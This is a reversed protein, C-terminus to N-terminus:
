GSKVSPVAGIDLYLGKEKTYRPWTVNMGGNPDGTKAFRTWLDILNNGVMDNTANVPIPVKFILIAESGHFAGYPQGPMVYTYQYRYTDPNLEANSGAVFKVADTFDFDTMIQILRLQVEATSNAPYKTFVADAEKGFRNQIFTRYEPVTMNADAALTTGDDANNGIILPVPNQRHLRFLTDPSDPILWGDITPEFHRSDVMQFPSAPWPTANALESASLKRMQTIADPGSYGLSQAFTEGIQEADAKSNLADIEAGNTWFTGSEVIAQQFLGKSLPSVMHILISEGGASQGFVTVRSPDGGFQGINRQVWQMAAIQDLLGYNGSVNHPSEKDLQPHALFGLTGDRYNPTVVIVGNEALATGNYLPMSGAIKGFAGGYFFIMVPLKEDASKAPTWVNLYLCDESMNLGPDAAFPQPCAPSYEKTEKVGEWPHLPATPRWRLDGTPPAAFPIGTFVRLNGQQMGSVSGADTKVIASNNVVNSAPENQTCGAIFLFGILVLCIVLIYRTVKGTQM